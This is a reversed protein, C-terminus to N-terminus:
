RREPASPRLGIRLVFERFRPNARLSEFRPEVNLFVLHVARERYARRLHEMAEDQRGLWALAMARFYTPGTEQQQTGDWVEALIREAAISDGLGALGCALQLRMLPSGRTLEAARAYEAVANEHEGACQLTSGLVWHGLAFEDDQEVAERARHAASAYDRAFMHVYGAYAM